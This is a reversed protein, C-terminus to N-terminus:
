NNTKMNALEDVMSQADADDNDDGAGAAAGAGVGAGAGANKNETLLEKLLEEDDDLKEMGSTVQRSDVVIEVVSQRTSVGQQSKSTTGIDIYVEKIVSGSTLFKYANKENIAEGDVKAVEFVARNNVVKGTRFDRVTCKPMGRLNVPIFDENGFRNFDLVLPIRLDDNGQADKFNKGAVSAHAEDSYKERTMPLCKKGKWGQFEEIASNRQEEFEQIFECYDQCSNGSIEIRVFGPMSEFQNAKADNPNSAGRAIVANRVVINAACPKEGDVLKFTTNVYGVGTRWTVGEKPKKVTFVITDDSADVKKKIDAAKVAKANFSMTTAATNYTIRRRKYATLIHIYTLGTLDLIFYRNAISIIM